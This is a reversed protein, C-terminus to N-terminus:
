EYDISALALKNILRSTERLCAILDALLDRTDADEPHLDDQRRSELWLLFSVADNGITYRYKRRRM